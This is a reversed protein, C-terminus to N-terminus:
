IVFYTHIEIFFVGLEQIHFNIATRVSILASSIFSKPLFIKLSIVTCILNKNAAKDYIPALEVSVLRILAIRQLVVICSPVSSVKPHQSVLGEGDFIM